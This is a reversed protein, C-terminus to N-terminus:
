ARIQSLGRNCALKFIMYAYHCRWHESCRNRDLRIDRELLSARSPFSNRAASSRGAIWGVGSSSILGLRSLDWAFFARSFGFWGVIGRGALGCDGFVESESIGWGGGRRGWRWGRGM